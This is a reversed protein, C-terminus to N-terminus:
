QQENLMKLLLDILKIKFEGLEKERIVIVHNGKPGLGVIAKWFKKEKRIKIEMILIKVHSRM